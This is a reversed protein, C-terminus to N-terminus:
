AKTGKTRKARRTEPTNKPTSQATAKSSRTTRQTYTHNRDNTSYHTLYNTPHRRQQTTRGLYSVRNTEIARQRRSARTGRSTPAKHGRDPVGGEEDGGEESEAQEAWKDHVQMHDRASRRTYAILSAVPLGCQRRRCLRARRAHGGTRM